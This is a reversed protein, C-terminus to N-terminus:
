FPWKGMATAIAAEKVGAPGARQEAGFASPRPTQAGGKYSPEQAM